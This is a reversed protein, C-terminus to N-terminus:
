VAADISDTLKKLRQEFGAVESYIMCYRNISAEYLAEDKGILSYLLKMRKFQKHAIPDNKTEPQEQMRIGTINSAENAKRLEIEAKTRHGKVLAIQKPRGDAM